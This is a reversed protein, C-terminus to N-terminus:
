RGLSLSPTPLPTGAGQRAGGAMTFSRGGPRLSVVPNSEAYGAPLVARAGARGGESSPARPRLLQIDSISEGAPLAPPGTGTGATSSSGSFIRTCASARRSPRVLRSTIVASAPTPTSTRLAWDLMSRLDASCTNVASCPFAVPAAGLVAGAVPGASGSVVGSEAAASGSSGAAPNTGSNAGGAGNNWGGAAGARRRRPATGSATCSAGARSGSSGASSVASASVPGASPSSASSASLAPRRRRRRPRRPRPRPRPPSSSLSDPSPSSSSVPSGAAASESSASAGSEGDSDSDSSSAPSSSESSSPWASSEPAVRRRRRRRRRRPLPSSPSGVSSDSGGLVTTRTRWGRSCRSGSLPSPTCPTRPEVRNSAFRCRRRSPRSAPRRRAGIRDSASNRARRSDTSRVITTRSRPSRISIPTSSSSMRTSCKTAPGPRSPPAPLDSTPLM